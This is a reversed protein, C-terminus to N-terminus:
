SEKKSIQNYLSTIAFAANIIASMVSGITVCCIPLLLGLAILFLLMIFTLIWIAITYTMRKEKTYLLIRGFDSRMQFRQEFLFHHIYPGCFVALLPAIM